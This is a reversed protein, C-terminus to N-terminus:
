SLHDTHSHFEEGDVLNVLNLEMLSRDIGLGLSIWLLAGNQLCQLHSKQQSLITELTFHCTKSELVKSPWPCTTSIHLEAPQSHLSVFTLTGVKLDRPKNRWQCALFMTFVGRLMLICPQHMSALATSSSSRACNLVIVLVSICANFRLTKILHLRFFNAM